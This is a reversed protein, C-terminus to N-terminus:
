KAIRRATQYRKSWYRNDLRSITGGHRGSAQAFEGGGLYV